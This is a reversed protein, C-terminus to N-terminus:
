VPLVTCRHQAPDSSWLDAKLNSLAASKLIVSNSSVLRPCHSPMLWSFFVLGFIFSHSSQLSQLVISFGSHSSWSSLCLIFHHTFVWVVNSSTTFIMFSHPLQHKGRFLQYSGSLARSCALFIYYLQPPHPHKNTKALFLEDWEVCKQWHFLLRSFIMYMTILLSFM